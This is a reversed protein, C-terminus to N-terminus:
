PMSAGWCILIWGMMFFVEGWSYVFVTKYPNAKGANQMTYDGRKRAGFVTKQGLIILITGPLSLALARWNWHSGINIALLLFLLVFPKSFKQKGEMNGAYLNQQILIGADVGQLICNILILVEQWGASIDNTATVFSSVGFITWAFVFPWPSELLLGFYTGDTGLFWKKFVAKPQETNEGCWAGDEDHSYDLFRVVPVMGCGAFFALFTRCNMFLPIFWPASNQYYIDLPFLKSPVSSTGMLFFFWGWVFLPGGMNYVVPHFNPKGSQEWLTGMKRSMFLIKQSLIVTFPGLICLVWCSFQDISNGKLQSTVDLASMIGLLIWGILFMLSLMKKKKPNRNMVAESMPISAIFSVAFSVLLAVIGFATPAM